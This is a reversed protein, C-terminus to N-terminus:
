GGFQGCGAGGRRTVAQAVAAVPDHAYAIVVPALRMLAGNGAREPDSSGALPDGSRAYSELAARTANGIDFCGGTSSWYGEHYWALYRQLQDHLDMGACVVLSEALCAAM